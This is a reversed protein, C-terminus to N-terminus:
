AGSAYCMVLTSAPLICIEQLVSYSPTLILSFLAKQCWKRNCQGPTWIRGEEKM